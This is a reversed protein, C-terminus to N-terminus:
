QMSGLIVDVAGMAAAVVPDTIAGAKTKTEAWAARLTAQWGNPVAALTKDAAVAFEVIMRTTGTPLGGNSNAAIAASQLENVRLSIQDATYAHQGIPSQFTPPHACGAAGCLLLILLLQKM